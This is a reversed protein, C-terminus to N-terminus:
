EAFVDAPPWPYGGFERIRQEEERKCVLIQGNKEAVIYGDLGQLSVKRAAEVHVICDSCEFFRVNGVSANGNSDKALKDHLSAWNGLDSWGFDAPDDQRSIHTLILTM